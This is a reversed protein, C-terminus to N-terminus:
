WRLRKGTNRDAAATIYDIIHERISLNNGLIQGSGEFHDVTLTGIFGNRLLWRKLDFEFPYRREHFPSLQGILKLRDGLHVAEGERRIRVWIKSNVKSFSGDAYIVEELRLPFNLYNGAQHPPDIVRGIIQARIPQFADPPIAATYAASGVVLLSLVSFINKAFTRHLILSLSFLGLAAFTTPLTPLDIWVALSIGAVLPM